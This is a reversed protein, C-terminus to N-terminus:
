ERVAIIACYVIKKGLGLLLEPVLAGLVFDVDKEPAYTKGRFIKKFQLFLFGSLIRFFDVQLFNYVIGCNKSLNRINIEKFGEKELCLKFDNLSMLNPVARRSLFSDYVKQMFSALSKDTRFGDLVVLREDSKLVMKMEKVFDKKNQAYCFSEIAFVGDFCDNPFNTDIYSGLIFKTNKM